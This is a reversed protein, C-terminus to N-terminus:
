EEEKAEMKGETEQKGRKRLSKIGGGRGGGGRSGHASANNPETMHSMM